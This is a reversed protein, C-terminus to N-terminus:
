HGAKQKRKRDKSEEHLEAKGLAHMCFPVLKPQERPFLRFLVRSSAATARAKEESAADTKKGKKKLRNSTATLGGLSESESERERLGKGGGFFFVEM